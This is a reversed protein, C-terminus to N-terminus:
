KINVETALGGPRGSGASVDIAPPLGSAIEPPIFRSHSKNGALINKPLGRGTTVARVITQRDLRQGSDGSAQVVAGSGASVTVTGSSANGLHQNALQVEGNSTITPCACPTRSSARDTPVPAYSQSAPDTCGPNTTTTGPVPPANFPTLPALNLPKM